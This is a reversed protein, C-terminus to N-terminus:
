NSLFTAYKNLFKNGKLIESDILKDEKIKSLLVKENLNEQTQILSRKKGNIQVVINIVNKKLLKQDAKPWFYKSKQDIEELCESAFHPVMPMFLQLIKLYNEKLNKENNEKSIEKLKDVNIDTAIVNAGENAFAIATARGIGQAAATVIINKNTLRM